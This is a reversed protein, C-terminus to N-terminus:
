RIEVWRTLTATGANRVVSYTYGNPVIFSFGVRSAVGAVAADTVTFSNLVVSFDPNTTASVAIYVVIPRGTSNTYTTGLARSALVDTLGQVSGAVGGYKVAADVQATTAVKTSSDSGAQTVATTNAALTLATGNVFATTAVKTSSDGVTATPATPSVSFSNTGTFTNTGSLTNNDSLGPVSLNTRAVSPSVVESLNNGGQMITTGNVTVSGTLAPSDLTAYHSAIYNIDTIAAQFQARMPASAGAANVAPIAPNITSSYTM